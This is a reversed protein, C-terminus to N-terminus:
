HETTKVAFDKVPGNTQTQLKPHSLHVESFQRPLLSITWLLYVANKPLSGRGEGFQSSVSFSPSHLPRSACSSFLADRPIELIQGSTQQIPHMHKIHLLFDCLFPEYSNEGLNNTYSAGFGGRLSFFWWGVLRCFGLGQKRPVRFTNKGQRSYGLNLQQTLRNPERLSVPCHVRHNLSQKMLENLVIVFVVFFPEIGKAWTLRDHSNM